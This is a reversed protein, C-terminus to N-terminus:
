SGRPYSIILCSLTKRAEGHGTETRSGSLARGLARRAEGEFFVQPANPLELSMDKLYIKEIGFLPQQAQPQQVPQQQESM